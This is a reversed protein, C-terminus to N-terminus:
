DSARAQAVAELLAAQPARQLELHTWGIDIAPLGDAEQRIYTNMSKTSAWRGLRQVIGHEIGLRVMTTTSTIRFSHGHWGSADDHHSACSRVLRVVDAAVIHRTKRRGHSAVEPFLLVQSNQCANHLHHPSTVPIGAATLRTVVHRVLLHVPCCTSGQVGGKDM